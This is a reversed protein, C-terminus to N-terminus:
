EARGAEAPLGDGNGELAEDKNEEVYWDISNDPPENKGKRPTHVGPKWPASMPVKGPHDLCFLLRGMLYAEEQCEAEIGPYLYLSGTIGAQGVARVFVKWTKM